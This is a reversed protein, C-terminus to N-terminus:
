HGVPPDAIVLSADDFVVAGTTLGRANLMMQFQVAKTGAPAFAAVQAQVFHSTPEEPYLFRHVAFAFERGEANLFVIKLMACQADRLPDQSSHMAWASGVVLRGSIDGARVEQLCQPWFRQGHASIRIAAGSRGGQPLVEVHGDTGRWVGPALGNELGPDDLVNRGHSVADNVMPSTLVLEAFDERALPKIVILGDGRIEVAEDKGLLRPQSTGVQVKGSLVAVRTSQDARAEVAFETGLDLVETAPTTVTIRSEPTPCSCFVKGAQVYVRHANTFQATAPGRLVITAGLASRFEASGSELRLLGPPMEGGRLALEINSDAWVADTAAVLTAVPPIREPHSGLEHWGLWLVIMAAAAFVAWRFWIRGASPEPQVVHGGSQKIPGRVSSLAADLNLYRLFVRRLSADDSLATELERADEASIVGDAYLGILEALREARNM